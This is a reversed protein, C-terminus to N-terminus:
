ESEEDNRERDRRSGLELDSERSARRTRRRPRARREDRGPPAAEGDGRGRAHPAGGPARQVRTKESNEEIRDNGDGHMSSM